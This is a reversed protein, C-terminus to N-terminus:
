TPNGRALQQVTSLFRLNSGNAALYHACPAHGVVLVIQAMDCLASLELPQLWAVARIKEYNAGLYHMLLAEQVM